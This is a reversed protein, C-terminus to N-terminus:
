SHAKTHYEGRSDIELQGHFMAHPATERITGSTTTLVYRAHRRMDSLTRVNRYGAMHAKLANRHYEFVEAALGRMPMIVSIGELVAGDAKGDHIHTRGRASAGGHYVKGGEIEEGSTEKCGAFLFGSMAGDVITLGLIVDSSDEYGGDLIVTGGMEHVVRTCELAATIAPVGVALVKRTDCISGSGIGVKVVQAGAKMLAYAAQETTVNGAMISIQPFSDRLRKILDLVKASFANAVEIGILANPFIEQIATAREWHDKNEVGIVAGAYEHRSTDRLHCLIKKVEDVPRQRDIIGLSGANYAIESLEQSAISRYCSPLLPFKLRINGLTLGFDFNNDKRSGGLMGPVVLLDDYSYSRKKFLDKKRLFVPHGLIKYKMMRWWHPVERQLERITRMAHETEIKNENGM